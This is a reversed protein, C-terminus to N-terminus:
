QPSKAWADSARGLRTAVENDLSLNGNFLPTGELGDGQFKRVFWYGEPSDILQTLGEDSVDYFVSPSACSGRKKKSALLDKCRCRDSNKSWFKQTGSWDTFMVCKDYVSEERVALPWYFVDEDECDSTPILKRLQREYNVFLAAHSADIAFWTEARRWETDVCFRSRSDLALDRLIWALPKLPLTDGSIIVLHTVNTDGLALRMMSIMLQTDHCRSSSVDERMIYPKFFDSVEPHPQKSHIMFTSTGRGGHRFFAEWAKQFVMRKYIMMLFAPKPPKKSAGPTALAPLSVWESLAELKEPSDLDPGNWRRSECNVEIV